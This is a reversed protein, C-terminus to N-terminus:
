RKSPLKEAQFMALVAAALTGRRRSRGNAYVAVSGDSNFRVRANKVACWVLLETLEQSTQVGMRRAAQERQENPTVLHGLDAMRKQHKREDPTM